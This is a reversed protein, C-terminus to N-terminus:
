RSFSVTLNFYCNYNLYMIVEPIDNAKVSENQVILGPAIQTSLHKNKKPSPM